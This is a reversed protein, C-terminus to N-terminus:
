CGSWPGAAPLWPGMGLQGGNEEQRRGAEWGRKGTKAGTKGPKQVSKKEGRGATKEGSQSVQAVVARSNKIGPKQARRHESKTKRLIGIPTGQGPTYNGNRKKLM